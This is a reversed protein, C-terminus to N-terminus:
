KMKRRMILDVRHELIFQVNSTYRSKTHDPEDCFVGYKSLYDKLLRQTM